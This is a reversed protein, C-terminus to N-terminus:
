DTCTPDLNAVPEKGRATWRVYTEEIRRTSQNFRLIKQGCIMGPQRGKSNSMQRIIGVAPDLTDGWYMLEPQWRGAASAVEAIMDLRDDYVFVQTVYGSASELTVVLMGNFHQMGSLSMNAVLDRDSEVLWTVPLTRRGTTERFKLTGMGDRDRSYTAVLSRGQLPWVMTETISGDGARAVPLLLLSCLGCALM